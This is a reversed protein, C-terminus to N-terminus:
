CGRGTRSRAAMATLATTAAPTSSSISSIVMPLTSRWVTSDPRLRMERDARTNDSSTPCKRSRCPGRRSSLFWNDRAMKMRSSRRGALGSLRPHSRSCATHESLPRVGSKHYGQPLRASAIPRPSLRLLQFCQSPRSSEFRRMASDFDAAKGSPSAGIGSKDWAAARPPRVMTRPAVLRLRQQGSLRLYRHAQDLLLLAHADPAVTRSIEELHLAVTESNCSPLVYGDRPEIGCGACKNHVCRRPGDGAM